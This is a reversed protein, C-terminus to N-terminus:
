INKSLTIHNDMFTYIKTKDSFSENPFASFFLKIPLSLTNEYYTNRICPVNKKFLLKLEFYLAANSKKLKINKWNNKRLENAIEGGNFLHKHGIEEWYNKRLSLLKQESKEYPVTLYLEAGSTVKSLNEIVKQWGEVHELVETCIIKKINKFESLDIKTVDSVIWTGEPLIKKCIEINTPDIDIGIINYKKSYPLLNNGTGCGIDVISYKM